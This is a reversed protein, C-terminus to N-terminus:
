PDDGITDRLRPRTADGKSQRAPKGNPLRGIGFMAVIDHVNACAEEYNRAKLISSLVFVVRQALPHWVRLNSMM